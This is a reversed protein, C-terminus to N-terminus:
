RARHFELYLSNCRELTWGDRVLQNIRGQVSEVPARGLEQQMVFQVEFAAANSRNRRLLLRNEGLEGREPVFDWGEAGWRNKAVILHEMLKGEVFARHMDEAAGFGYYDHADIM